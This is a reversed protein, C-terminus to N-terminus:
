FSVRYLLDDLYFDQSFPLSVHPWYPVKKPDAALINGVEIIPIGIFHERMYLAVEYQRQGVKSPDKESALAAILADLKPDQAMTILGKSQYLVDFAGDWLSRNPLRMVGISNRLNPPKNSMEKRVTAYETPIIKSKIGIKEFYGALGEGVTYTEPVGGMKWVYINIFPEENPFAEKVLQKARELNYPVLPV